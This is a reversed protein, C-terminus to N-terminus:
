AVGPRSPTCEDRIRGTVLNGSPKWLKEKIDQMMSGVGVGLMVRMLEWRTAREAREVEEALHSEPVSESESVTESESGLGPRQQMSGSESGSESETESESGLGPRQQMSGLDSGSQVTGALRYQTPHCPADPVQIELRFSLRYQRSRRLAASVVSALVGGGLTGVYDAFPLSVDVQSHHESDGASGSGGDKLLCAAQLRGYAGQWAGVCEMLRPGAAQEFQAHLLDMVRDSGIEADKLLDRSPPQEQGSAENRLQHPENHENLRMLRALDKIPKYVGDDYIEIVRAIYAPSTKECARQSAPTRTPRGDPTGDRMDRRSKDDEARVNPGLEVRRRALVELGRCACSSEAIMRGDTRQCSAALTGFFTAPLGTPCFRALCTKTGHM